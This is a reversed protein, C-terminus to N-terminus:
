DEPEEEMAKIYLQEDKNSMNEEDNILTVQPQELYRHARIPQRKKTSQSEKAVSTRKRRKQEHKKNRDYAGLTGINAVTEGAGVTIKKLGGGVGEFFGGRDEDAHIISISSLGFLVFMQLKKM